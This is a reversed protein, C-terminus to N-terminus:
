CTGYQIQFERFYPQAMLQVLYLVNTWTTSNDLQFGCKIMDRLDVPVNRFARSVDVKM